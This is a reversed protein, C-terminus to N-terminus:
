NDKKNKEEKRRLFESFVFVPNDGTEIMTRFSWFCDKTLYYHTYTDHAIEEPFLSYILLDRSYYFEVYNYKVNVKVVGFRLIGNFHSALVLIDNTFEEDFSQLITASFILESSCISHTFNIGNTDDVKYGGEIYKEKDFQGFTHGSNKHYKILEMWVYHSDKKVNFLRYIRQFTFKIGRFLSQIKEM